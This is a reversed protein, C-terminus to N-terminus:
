NCWFIVYRWWKLISTASEQQDKEMQGFKKGKFMPAAMSLLGTAGTVAQNIGTTKAKAAEIEKEKRIKEQDAAQSVDMAILQQKVDEEAQAKEKDLAMLDQQM